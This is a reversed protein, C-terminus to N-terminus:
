FSGSSLSCTASVGAGMFWLSQPHDVVRDTQAGGMVWLSQPDDVVQAQRPEVWLGSAKPTM